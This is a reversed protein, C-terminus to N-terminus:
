WVLIIQADPDISGTASSDQVELTYWGKDADSGRYIPMKLTSPIFDPAGEPKHAVKLLARYGWAHDNDSTTPIDRFEDLNDGTTGTLEFDQVRDDQFEVQLRQEWDTKPQLNFQFQQTGPPLFIPLGDDHGELPGHVCSSSSLGDPDVVFDGIVITGNEGDLTLGLYGMDTTLNLPVVTSAMALDPTYHLEYLSMGPVDSAVPRYWLYINQLADANGPHHTTLRLVQGEQPNVAEGYIPVTLVSNMPPNNNDGLTVLEDAQVTIRDEANWNYVEIEVASSGDSACNYFQRIPFNYPLLVHIGEM